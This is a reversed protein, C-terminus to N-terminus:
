RHGQVFRDMNYGGMMDHCVIVKQAIPNRMVSLNEKLPIVPVCLEDHGPTWSLVDEVSKLPSAVPLGNGDLLTIQNSCNKKTSLSLSLSEEEKIAPAREFLLFGTNLAPTEEGNHSEVVERTSMEIFLRYPFCICYLMFWVIFNRDGVCLYLQM